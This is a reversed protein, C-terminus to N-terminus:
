KSLEGPTLGTVRQMKVRSLYNPIHDGDLWRTVVSRHVGMRRAFEARTVGERQMWQSLKKM